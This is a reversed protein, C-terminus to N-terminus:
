DEQRSCTECLGSRNLDSECERCKPRASDEKQERLYAAARSDPHELRRLLAWAMTFDPGYTDFDGAVVEALERIAQEQPTRTEIPLVRYAYAVVDPPFLEQFPARQAEEESVQHMRADAWKQPDHGCGEAHEFGTQTRIFTCPQCDCEAEANHECYTSCFRGKKGLESM